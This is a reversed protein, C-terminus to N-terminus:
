RAGNTWLMRSPAQVGKRADVWPRVGSVERDAWVPLRSKARTLIGCMLGRPVSAAVHAPPVNRRPAVRRIGETSSIPKPYADSLKSVRVALWDKEYMAEHLAAQAPRM